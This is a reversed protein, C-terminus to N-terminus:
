MYLGNWMIKMADRSNFGPNIMMFLQIDMIAEQKFNEMEEITYWLDKRLDNEMIYNRDIIIFEENENKFSIKKKRKISDLEQITVIMEITTIMEFLLNKIEDNM